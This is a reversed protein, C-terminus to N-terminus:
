LLNKYPVGCARNQQPARIVSFGLTSTTPISEASKLTVTLSISRPCKGLMFNKADVQNVRSVEVTGGSVAGEHVDINM